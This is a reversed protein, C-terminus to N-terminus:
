AIHAKQSTSLYGALDRLYANGQKLGLATVRNNNGLSIQCFIKNVLGLSDRYFVIENMSFVAYMM